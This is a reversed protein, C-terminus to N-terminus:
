TKQFIRTTTRRIESPELFIKFLNQTTSETNSFWGEKGFVQMSLQELRALMLSAEKSEVDLRDSLDLLFNLKKAPPWFFPHFSVMNSSLRKEVNSEIMREIIDVAEMDSEKLELLDPNNEIINRDRSFLDGFPHKGDTLLYYFVLGSSFVDLKNTLRLNLTTDQGTYLLVEPSRWGITGGKEETTNFFSVQGDPLKKCLGFDTILAKYQGGTHKAILVNHPKIDRHVINLSHLHQVGSILDQCIKRRDLNARIDLLPINASTTSTPEVV